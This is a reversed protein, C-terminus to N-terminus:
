RGGVALVLAIEVALAVVGGIAVSIILIHLIFIVCLRYPRIFNRFNKPNTRLLVDDTNTPAVALRLLQSVDITWRCRARPRGRPRPRRNGLPSASSSSRSSLSPCLPPVRVSVCVKHQTQVFGIQASTLFLRVDRFVDRSLLQSKSAGEM